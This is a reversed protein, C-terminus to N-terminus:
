ALSYKVEINFLIHIENKEKLETPIYDINIMEGNEAKDLYIDFIGNIIKDLEKYYDFKGKHKKRLYCTFSSIRYQYNANESQIDVRDSELEISVSNDKFIENFPEISYGKFLESVINYQKM